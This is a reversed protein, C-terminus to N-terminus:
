GDQQELLVAVGPLPKGELFELSAGGGTSVHSMNGALGMEYIAEATSGGGILTTAGANTKAAVATAISKTGNAFSSWESVGQTGNWLITQAPQLAAIYSKVTMQGIDMVQWGDPISSAPVNCQDADKAFANSVVFDTPLLLNVGLSQASNIVERAPGILDEEVLSNGTSLGKARLFTAAMGGGVLIIDAKTMLNRLILLKDSVKAGGFIAALPRKPSELVRGLMTLERAMLLGSIADVYHTVGETSAHARHAAGFADNVYIEALSALSESFNPDNTEGEPHFRLNELMIIDRPAMAKVNSSVESGISDSMQLVDISLKESLRQSVPAMRLSDVEKGNPRGLHSCLVLKCDQSLLRQLTPLTADIRSDDAIENTGPYFTVNFDVRVLVTKGTLDVDSGTLKAM